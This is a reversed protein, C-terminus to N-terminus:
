RVCLQGNNAPTRCTQPRRLHSSSGPQFDRNVL